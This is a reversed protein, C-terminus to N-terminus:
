FSKTAAPCIRSAAAAVAPAWAAYAEASPHLGDAAIMGADAQAAMLPGLELWAAGRTTAVERLTRNFLDIRAGLAAPDGFSAAVPSRHWAPQPLAIVRDAPVGAVLLGDFIRGIQTRYADVSVGRVIDNAGIALTVLHPDFGAAEGLERDLLDQTTFGNRAPNRLTVACAPRWLSSLVAPFAQDARAGTGITFSDGLTLVRVEAAHAAASCALLLLAPLWRM